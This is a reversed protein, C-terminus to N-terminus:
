YGCLYRRVPAAFWYCWSQYSKMVIVHNESISKILLQDIINKNRYSITRSWSVNFNIDLHDLVFNWPHVSRHAAELTEVCNMWRLHKLVVEVSSTLSEECIRGRLPNISEEVSFINQLSFRKFKRLCNGWLPKLRAFFKIAKSTSSKLYLFIHHFNKNRSKFDLILLLTNCYYFKNEKIFASCIKYWNITSRNLPTKWFGGFNSDGRWTMQM